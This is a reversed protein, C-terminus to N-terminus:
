ATVVPLTADVRYRGDDQVGHSLTGGLLCVREAMGLLGLGSGLGSGGGSPNTACIKVATPSCTVVLQATGDSGYRLANTLAEQAIRYASVDVGAPLVPPSPDLHATVDLGESRFREILRPVDALGPTPQLGLEDTDDRVVHLLRGAESLAQRGTTAVAELVQEAREPDRRLLDQAAATQVVMVSLSHAIVDHLERAIRDREARVAARRTLEQSQELLMKQAALRQVLQGLVYPPGILTLVFIVDGVGHQRTDVFHYAAWFTALIVAIGAVGRFGAAWRGLAYGVVACFLIPTAVDNLQPGFWPMQLLVVASVTPALLGHRHRVALLAAAVAELALAYGWRPPRGTILEGAGVALLGAPLLLDGFRALARELV